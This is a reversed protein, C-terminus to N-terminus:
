LRCRKVVKLSKGVVKSFKGGSRLGKECREIVKDYTGGGISAFCDKCWDRVWLALRFVTREGCCWCISPLTLHTRGIDAFGSLVEQSLGKEERFQQIVKGIIIPDLM